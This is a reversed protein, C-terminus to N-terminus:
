GHLIYRRVEMGPEVRDLAVIEVANGGPPGWESQARALGPRDVPIEVRIGHMTGRLDECPTMIKRGEPGDLALRVTRHSRDVPERHRPDAVLDMHGDTGAGKQVILHAGHHAAQFQNSLAFPARAVQLLSQFRGVPGGAARDCRGM